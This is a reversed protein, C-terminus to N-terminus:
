KMLEKLNNEVEKFKKFLRIVERCHGLYAKFARILWKLFYAYLIVIGLLFIINLLM